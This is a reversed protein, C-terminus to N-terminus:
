HICGIWIETKKAYADRWIKKAKTLTKNVVNENPHVEAVVIYFGESFGNYQTSYEISIHPAETERGRAVYCPWRFGNATCDSKSFTLGLKRDPSLDRLKLKLGMTSAAKKATKLASTYSKTSKLIVVRKEVLQSDETIDAHAVLSFALFLPLLRSLM